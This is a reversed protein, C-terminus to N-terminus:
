KKKHHHKKKPNVSTAFSTDLLNMIEQMKNVIAFASDFQGLWDDISPIKDNANKALTWALNEIVSTDVGQGDVLNKLMIFDSLLDKQFYQAYLRGTCGTSKMPIPKGEIVIVKFM